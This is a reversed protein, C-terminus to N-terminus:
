CVSSRQKAKQCLGELCSVPVRQSGIKNASNGRGNYDSGGTVCLQLRRATERLRDGDNHKHHPHYVELGDLGLGHLYEIHREADEIMPHALVVVGGAQHVIDIAVEPAFNEKAVYAPGDNSIFKRFAEEYCSAAGAQVIAEAVHPRAVAASGAIEQVEEISITVGMEKLKQVMLKARQNRRLRFEALADRLAESEADFCYALLHADNGDVDVSIELGSMLRTEYQDALIRAALYGDTSDHDTIAIADLNRQTAAEFIESVSLVGDSHHSHIHLDIHKRM